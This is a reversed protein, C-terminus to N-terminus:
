FDTVRSINSKQVVSQPQFPGIFYARDPLKRPIPVNTKKRFSSFGFYDSTKKPPFTVKAYFHDFITGFRNKLFLFDDSKDEFPTM